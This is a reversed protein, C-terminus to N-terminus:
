LYKTYSNLSQIIFDDLQTQLAKQDQEFKTIMSQVAEDDPFPIHRHMHRKSKQIHVFRELKLQLQPLNQLISEAHTVAPIEEPENEQKQQQERLLDMYQSHSKEEKLMTARSKKERMKRKPKQSFWRQRTNVVVRRNAATKPRRPKRPNKNFSPPLIFDPQLSPDRYSINSALPDTWGNELANKTASFKLM